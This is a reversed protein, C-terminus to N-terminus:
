GKILEEMEKESIVAVGLERAKDLKSGAESGRRRLRDEQQGLRFGPRRCRRDAEQSRRPHPAGPNRDARIDKRRAHHARQKKKGKFTLGAERLREVLAVNKPEDFFERISASVRPGIENVQQLEEESAKMLADM